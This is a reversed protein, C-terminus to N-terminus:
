SNIKIIELTLSVVKDISKESLKDLNNDYVGNHQYHWVNNVLSYEDDHNNSIILISSVSACSFAHSDNCPINQCSYFKDAEPTKISYKYQSYKEQFIYEGISIIDLNINFLISGEESKELYLSAGLAGKEEYDTFVIECNDPIIEQISLLASIGSANDNYGLSGPFNDYHATLVIKPKTLDRAPIIINKIDTMNDSIYLFGTHPKQAQITYPRKILSCIRNLREEREKQGIFEMVAKYDQMGEEKKNADVLGMDSIYMLGNSM